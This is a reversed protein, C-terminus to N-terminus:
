HGIILSTDGFQWGGIRARPNPKRTIKGTREFIQIVGFQPLKFLGHITFKLAATRCPRPFFSVLRAVSYLLCDLDWLALGIENPRREFGAEFRRGDGAG